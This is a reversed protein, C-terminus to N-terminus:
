MSYMHGSEHTDLRECWLAIHCLLKVIPCKRSYMVRHNFFITIMTTFTERLMQGKLETSLTEVADLEM